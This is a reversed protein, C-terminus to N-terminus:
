ILNMFPVSKYYNIEAPVWAIAILSFSVLTFPVLFRAPKEANTGYASAFVAFTPYLIWWFRWNQNIGYCNAVDICSESGPSQTMQETMQQGVVLLVRNAWVVDWDAEVLVFHSFGRVAVVVIWATAIGLMATTMTKGPTWKIVATLTVWWAFIIVAASIAGYIQSQPISLDIFWTSIIMNGAGQAEAKAALEFYGNLLLEEYMGGFIGFFLSLLIALASLIASNDATVWKGGPKGAISEEFELFSSTNTSQPVKERIAEDALVAAITPDPSM